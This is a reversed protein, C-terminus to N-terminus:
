QREKAPPVDITTVQTPSQLAFRQQFERLISLLKMADASSLGLHIYKGTPRGGEPRQEVIEARVLMQRGDPTAIVQPNWATIDIEARHTMEIPLAM